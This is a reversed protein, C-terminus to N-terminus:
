VGSLGVRMPRLSSLKKSDDILDRVQLTALYFRFAVLELSPPTHSSLLPRVIPKAAWRAAVAAAEIGRQTAHSLFSCSWLAM